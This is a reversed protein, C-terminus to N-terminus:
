GQEDAGKTEEWFTNCDRMEQKAKTLATETM